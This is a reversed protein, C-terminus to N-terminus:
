GSRHQQGEWNANRGREMSHLRSQVEALEKEAWRLERKAEDEEALPAVLDNKIGDSAMQGFASFREAMDHASDVTWDEDTQRVNDMVRRVSDLIENWNGTTNHRVRALNARAEAGALTQGKEHVSAKLEDCLQRLQEVDRFGDSHQPSAGYLSEEEEDDQRVATSRNVYSAIPM